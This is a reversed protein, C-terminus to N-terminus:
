VGWPQSDDTDDESEPELGWSQFIHGASCRMVILRDWPEHTLPSRTVVLQRPAACYGELLEDYRGCCVGPGDSITPQVMRRPM